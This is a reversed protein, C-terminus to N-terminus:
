RNQATTVPAMVLILRTLQQKCHRPLRTQSRMMILGRLHHGNIVKGALHQFSPNAHRCMRNCQSNSVAPVIPQVVTVITQASSTCGSDSLAQVTYTGGNALTVSNIILPNQTAPAIGPGTWTYSAGGSATLSLPAGVCLSQPPIAPVVPLPNVYITAPPSYVRCQVSSINSGNGVGLRYQYVCPVANTFQVNILPQRTERCIWGM